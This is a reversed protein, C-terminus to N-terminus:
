CVKSVVFHHEEYRHNKRDMGCHCTDLDVECKCYPCIIANITQMSELYGDGYLQNISNKFEQEQKKKIERIKEREYSSMSLYEASKEGDYSNIIKKDMIAGMKILEDKHIEYYQEINM